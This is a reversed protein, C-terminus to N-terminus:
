AAADGHRIECSAGARRGTGDCPKFFAIPTDADTRKGINEDGHPEDLAQGVEKVYAHVIQTQRQGGFLQRFASFGKGRFEAPPFRLIM